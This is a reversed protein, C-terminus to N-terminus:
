NQIRLNQRVIDNALGALKEAAQRSDTAFYYYGPSACMMLAPSLTPYAPAVRSEFFGFQDYDEVYKIELVALKFGKAKIQNCYDVDIASIAHAGTDSVGDTIVVAVKEPKTESSGDYQSGLMTQLGRFAVDYRTHDSDITPFALSAKLAAENTSRVVGQVFSDSFGATSIHITLNKSEDANIALLNRVATGFAEKLVDIRLRAPGEFWMDNMQSVSLPGWHDPEPKHCAFACPRGNSAETIKLLKARETADAAINMSESVDLMFYFDMFGDRKITSQARRKYSLSNQKMLSLFATKYTGSVTVSVSGNVTDIESTVEALQMDAPLNARAVSQILATAQSVTGTEMQRAGALAAADAAAQSAMTARSLMSVDVAGGIAFALVIFSGGAMIAINGRRDFLFRRLLM